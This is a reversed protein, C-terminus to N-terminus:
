RAAPVRAAADLFAGCLRRGLDNWEGIREPLEAAISNVAPPPDEDDALWSRIQEETVEPHFQVGWAVEGLRFAQTCLSSRALEIAGAPLAHTYRHWQFACFQRPLVSLVPDYEAAPTLEVHHWGIEPEPAPMVAANAARALLQAGLCVGLVPQHLDLIRQIFLTEERLWPHRDDQDAHMAGGFVLVADYSDVPRPPATGWALSWEELTHGRERMVDAFVGARANGGHVVSLVNM